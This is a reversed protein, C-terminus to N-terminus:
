KKPIYRKWAQMEGKIRMKVKQYTIGLSKNCTTTSRKALGKAFTSLWNNRM